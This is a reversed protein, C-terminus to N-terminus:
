LWRTFWDRAGTASEELHSVYPDYHRCDLTVLEKPEGALEFAERQWATPTQTDHAAIVMLLPTPAVRSVFQAPEYERILEFSRITIRNEFPPDDGFSAVWEDTESGPPAAVATQPEAGGARAARDADLRQAFRDQRERPVWLDYTDPGRLFPVQSVVARVRRDLAGVTIAHGGSFSTGWLGIRSEDVDDRSMLWTIVDRMDHVQQWGYTECRPEGDSDGYGRHDYVVCHLGAEQFMRAYGDLGMAKTVSFGHSVVIAPRKAQGAPYWWGGLETGDETTIRVDVREAVM